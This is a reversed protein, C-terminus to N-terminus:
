ILKLIEKDEDNFEKRLFQERMGLKKIILLIKEKINKSITNVFINYLAESIYIKERRVPYYKKDLSDLIELTEEISTEEINELMYIIIEHIRKKEINYKLMVRLYNNLATNNLENLQIKNLDQINSFIKNGLILLKEFNTCYNFLIQIINDNREQNYLKMIINSAKEIANKELEVLKNIYKELEINEMHKDLIDHIEDYNSNEIQEILLSIYEPYYSVTTKDILKKVLKKNKILDVNQEFILEIINNASEGNLNDIMYEVAKLSFEMYTSDKLLKCIFEIYLKTDADDLIDINEGVIEIIWNSWETHNYYNKLAIIGNKLNRKMEELLLNNKILSKSIQIYKGINEYEVEAYSSYLPKIITNIYSLQVNSYSKLIKDIIIHYEDDELLQKSINTSLNKLYKMQNNECIKKIIDTIYNHNEIDTLIKDISDKNEETINLNLNGLINVINDIKDDLLEVKVNSIIKNSMKSSVNNNMKLIIKEMTEILDEINIWQNIPELCVDYEKRKILANAIKVVLDLGKQNYYEKEQIYNCLENYERAEIYYEINFKEDIAEIFDEISYNKVARMFVRNLVFKLIQKIIDSLETENKLVCSMIKIKNEKSVENDTMKLIIHSIFSELLNSKNSIKYLLIVNEIDYEFYNYIRGNEDSVSLKKILNNYIEKQFEESFLDLCNVLTNLVNLNIKGSELQYRVVKQVNEVDNEIIESVRVVNKSELSERINRQKSDGIEIGLKDQSMYIYPAINDVKIVSTLILYNILPLYEEKLKNGDFYCSIEKLTVPIEKDIDRDNYFNLLNKELDFDEILKDYFENFDCQLVSLKAILKIGQKNILLGKEIKINDRKQAILYNNLFNNIIKKVQRPNTVNPHILIEDLIEEFDEGCINILENCKERCLTHAYERIDYEPLPPMYIKFQFLKDLFLESEVMQTDVQYRKESNKLAKKVISDDFPVIFVIKEFEAFAKIADLAEVIKPITLRDIDDITVIIKKNITELHEKLLEEYEDTGNKPYMVKWFNFGKIKYADIFEAIIPVLFSVMAKQTFDSKIYSVIGSLINIKEGQIRFSIFYGVSYVLTILCFVIFAQLSLKLIPLAIKWLKKFWNDKVNREEKQIIINSLNSLQEKIIEKEKQGDVDEFVQKLLARRLEEKEYKWANIKVFKYKKSYNLKREVLELTSSKGTGWKGILAINYPVKQTEIINVINDAIDEHKFYDDERSIITEDKLFYKKVEKM